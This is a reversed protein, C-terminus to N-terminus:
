MDLFLVSSIQAYFIQVDQYNASYSEMDYAGTTKVLEAPLVAGLDPRIELVLRRLTNFDNAILDSIPSEKQKPTATSLAKASSNAKAQLQQITAAM